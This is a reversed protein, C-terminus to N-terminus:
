SIDSCIFFHLYVCTKLICVFFHIFSYRKMENKSSFSLEFVAKRHDVEDVVKGWVCVCWFLQLHFCFALSDLVRVHEYSDYNLNIEEKM